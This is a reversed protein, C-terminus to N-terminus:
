LNGKLYLSQSLLDAPSSVQVIMVISCAGGGNFRRRM